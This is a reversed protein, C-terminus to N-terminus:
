EVRRGAALPADTAAVDDGTDTLARAFAHLEDILIGDDIDDGFFGTCAHGLLTEFVNSACQCLLCDINESAVPLIEGSVTWRALEDQRLVEFLEAHVHKSEDLRTGEFSAFLGCVATHVVHSQYSGHTRELQGEVQIRADDCHVIKVRCVSEGILVSM